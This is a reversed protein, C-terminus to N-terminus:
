EEIRINISGLLIAFLLALMWYMVSAGTQVATMHSMGEALWIATGPVLLARFRTRSHFSTIAIYLALSPVLYPEFVGSTFGACIAFCVLLSFGYRLWIRGAGGWAAAPFGQGQQPLLRTSIFTERGLMALWRLPMRAVGSYMGGLNLAAQATDDRGQQREYLEALILKQINIPTLLPQRSERYVVALNFKWTTDPWPIRYRNWCRLTWAGLCLVLPLLLGIWDWYDRDAGAWIWAVGIAPLLVLQEIRIMVAIAALLGFFLGHTDPFQWLLLTIIWCSLALMPEPWYRRNYILLEPTLLFAFVVWWVDLGAHYAALVSGLATALGSSLILWTTREPKGTLKRVWVFFEIFLPVRLFLDPKHPDERAARAIYDVEDGVTQLPGLSLALAWQCLLIAALALILTLM